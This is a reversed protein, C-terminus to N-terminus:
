YRPKNCYQAPVISRVSDKKRGERREGCKLPQKFFHLLCARRYDPMTTTDHHLCAASVNLVICSHLGTEPMQIDQNIVKYFMALNGVPKHASKPDRM